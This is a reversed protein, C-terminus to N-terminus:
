RDNNFVGMKKAFEELKKLDGNQKDLINKTAIDKIIDRIAQAIIVITIWSLIFIGTVFLFSNIM